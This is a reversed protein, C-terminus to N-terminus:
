RAAAFQEREALSLGMRRWVSARPVAALISLTGRGLLYVDSLLVLAYELMRDM